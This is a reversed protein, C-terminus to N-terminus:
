PQVGALYTAVPNVGRSPTLWHVLKVQGASGPKAQNSQPLTIQDLVVPDTGPALLALAWTANELQVVVFRDGQAIRTLLGVSEAIASTAEAGYVARVVAKGPESGFAPATWCVALQSMTAISILRTLKKM